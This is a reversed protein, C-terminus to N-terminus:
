QSGATAPSLVVPYGMIVPDLDRKNYVDTDSLIAFRSKVTNISIRSATKCTEEHEPLGLLCPLCTVCHIEMKRWQMAICLVTLCKVSKLM